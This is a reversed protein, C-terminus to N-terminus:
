PKWSKAYEAYRSDGLKEKIRENVLAHLNGPDPSRLAKIKALNIDHEWWESFIMRFEADTANFQALRERVNGATWSVAMQLQEYEEPMLVRLLEKQSEDYTHVIQQLEDANRTPPRKLVIAIMDAENGVYRLLTNRVEQRKDAPLFALQQELVAARWERSTDPPIVDEGVLQGLVDGMEEDLERRARRFEDRRSAETPETVWPKFDRYIVAAVNSRQLAYAQVVDATVIDRITQEPCGISRLNKVYARYDESEVDRWVLVSPRSNAPPPGTTSRRATPNGLLSHSNDDVSSGRSQAVAPTTEHLPLSDSLRRAQWFVVVLLAVNVIGM